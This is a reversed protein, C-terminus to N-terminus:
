WDKKVRINANSKMKRNELLDKEDNQLANLIREAEEKTLEREDQQQGQQQQEEQQEEGESEQKDQEQQEGQKQESQDQQQDSQEQEQQQDGEQNQEQNQMQEKLENRVYELNYKTDIDDPNLELAKVYSQIAEPLKDMRYLTNGMNYFSRFHLDANDSNLVKNYEQFTEEFKGQKYLVNGMNYHIEASEPDDLSADTYLNLAEEYQETKFLENAKQVKEKATQASLLNTFILLITLTILSRKKM